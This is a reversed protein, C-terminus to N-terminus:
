SEESCLFHKYRAKPGDMIFVKYWQDEQLVYFDGVAKSKTISCGGHLLLSHSLFCTAPHERVEPNKKNALVLDIKKWEPEALSSRLLHDYKPSQKPTEAAPVYQIM